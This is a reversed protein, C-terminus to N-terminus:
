SGQFIRSTERATYGLGIFSGVVFAIRKAREKGKYLREVEKIQSELKQLQAPSAIQEKELKAAFTRALNGVKEPDANELVFAENKLDKIRKSMTQATQRGATKLTEELNGASVSKGESSLLQKVYGEAKQRLGPVENMWDINKQNTVWNEAKASSNLASLENVVHQNAFDAVKEKDNGLLRTLDQVGQKSQFFQAPANAPDAALENIDYKQRALVSEGRRTREPYLKESNIKYEQDAIRISDDWDAISKELSKSMAKARRQGIAKFGEEPFGKEADRLKRLVETVPKIDLPAKKAVAVNEMLGTAPDFKLQTEFGTQKGQLENIINKIETEEATTVPTVDSVKIKNELTNFFDQGSPSSQWYDGAQQKKRTNDWAKGYTSEALKKRQEHGVDSKGKIENVLNKGTVSKDQPTGLQKKTTEIETTAAEREGAAGLKAQRQKGYLERGAGREQQMLSEALKQASTQLEGVAARYPAGTVTKIAGPVKSALYGTGGLGLGTGMEVLQQTQPSAGKREALARAGEAGAGVAGAGATAKTLAGLSKPILAEALQSAYPAFRTGASAAKLGGAVLGGAPVASAYMAAKELFKPEGALEGELPVTKEGGTPIKSELKEDVAIGGFKSGSPVQEDVAVGGFKSAM